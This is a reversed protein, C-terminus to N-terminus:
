FGYGISLALDYNTYLTEDSESATSLAKQANYLVGTLDIRANFSDSIYFKLGTSWMAGTHSENKESFSGTGGSIFEERNNKEELKAIGLGLLWDLYIIKNFTNIKAYFPSWVLMGGMYSDTIRRFPRSGTGGPNRVSLATENEEGSNMSYLFEIGWNEQFFFSARAQIASADVFAGSTTMGYGLNIFFRSAKRFRRNQLVFVEKDPDLWSFDYTDSESAHVELSSISTFFSFGIGLLLLSIFIRRM